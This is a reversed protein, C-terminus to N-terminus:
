RRYRRGPEVQVLSLVELATLASALEAACLESRRMLDDYNQLEDTLQAYVHCGIAPVGMAELEDRTYVQKERAPKPKASPRQEKYISHATEKATAPQVPRANQASLVKSINQLEEKSFREFYTELIDSASTVLTGYSQILRNCGAMSADDLSGPVAFVDRDQDFAYKATMLAGSRQAAQVVLTGQSLGALLRNRVVFHHPKVDLGFPFESILAGGEDLIQRKISASQVPYPVQMGCAMVGVTRGHVSLAAHHAAQDIGVALGSVIQCGVSALDSVIRQTAREAEPSSKRTGVVTISLPANTCLTGLVYLVCPKCYIHTFERPYDGHEPTVVECGLKKAREYMRQAFDLTITKLKEINEPTFIGLAELAQRDMEFVDQATLGEDLLKDIRASGIGLAQQLWIWYIAKEVATGGKECRM